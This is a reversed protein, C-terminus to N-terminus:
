KMGGDYPNCDREFYYISKGLEKTRIKYASTYDTGVTVIACAIILVAAITKM